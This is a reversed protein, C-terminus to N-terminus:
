ALLCSSVFIKYMFNQTVEAPSVARLGRSDKAVESM